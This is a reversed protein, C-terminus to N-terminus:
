RVAISSRFEEIDDLFQQSRQLHTWERSGFLIKFWKKHANGLHINKYLWYTAYTFLLAIPLTILFFSLPANVISAPTVFWLCYFPTQLFLIRTVWLTSSQLRTIKEQASIINDENNFRNIWYLQRFYVFAAILTIVGIGYACISFFITQWKMSVIGLFVMAAGYLIGLIALITKQLKLSKLKANAKQKQIMTYNELNLVWTQLNLVRTEELRRNYMDLLNNLDQEKM